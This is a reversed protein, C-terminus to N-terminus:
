IDEDDEKTWIETHDKEDFPSTCIVMNHKGGGRLIFVKFKPDTYKM